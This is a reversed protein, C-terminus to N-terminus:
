SFDNITTKMSLKYKTLYRSIVIATLPVFVRLHTDLQVTSPDLNTFNKSMKYRADQSIYSQMNVIKESREINKYYNFNNNFDCFTEHM